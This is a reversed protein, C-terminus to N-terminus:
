TKSFFNQIPGAIGIPDEEFPHHGLSSLIKFESRNLIAKLEDQVWQPVIRDEDGWLNLHRFEARLNLETLEDPLRHDGIISTAKLFCRWADGKDRFPLLYGAVVKDTITLKNKVVNRVAIKMTFRNICFHLPGMWRLVSKPYRILSRHTGPAITLVQHCSARHKKAIWLSINGGMSSGVLGFSRINIYALFNVVFDSISDLDYKFDCVKQSRGFGPMDIATVRFQLSLPPILDRWIFTSAGIGHLLVLDPGTGIQHYHIEVGNFTMFLSPVEPHIRFNLLEERQAIAPRLIWVALVFASLLLSLLVLIVWTIM